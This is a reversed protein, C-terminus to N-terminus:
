WYYTARVQMITESSDLPPRIEFKRWGFEAGLVVDPRAAWFGGVSYDQIRSIEDEGTLPEIWQVGAILAVPVSTVKGLDVDAAVAVDLASSSASGVDRPVHIWQYDASAQVGVVPSPAWAIAVGPQLTTVHSLQLASGSGVEGSSFSQKIADIVIIGLRPGYSADFTLAAQIPGLRRSATARAFGGITVDAGIVLASPSDTGSYLTTLLGAGASFWDAFQHDYAFTQGMAAFSYNREGDINGRIDYTPGTADGVGYLLGVDFSTVAFPTRVLFSPQFLHGDLVRQSHLQRTQAGATGAWAAACVAVALLRRRM